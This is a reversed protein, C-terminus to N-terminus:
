LVDTHRLRAAVLEDGAVGGGPGIDLQARTAVADEEVAGDVVVQEPDGGRRGIRRRRRDREGAVILEHTEFTWQLIHAALDDAVLGARHAPQAGTAADMPADVSLPAGTGRCGA